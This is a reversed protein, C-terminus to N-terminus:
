TRPAARGPVARRLRGPHIPLRVRDGPHILRLQAAGHLGPCTRPHRRLARRRPCHQGRRVAPRYQGPDGRGTPRPRHRCRRHRAAHRSQGPRICRGDQIRWRLQRQRHAAPQLHRSGEHKAGKSPPRPMRAGQSVNGHHRQLTGRYGHCDVPAADSAVHADARRELAAWIVGACQRADGAALCGLAMGDRHGPDGSGLTRDSEARIQDRRAASLGSEFDGSDFTTLLRFYDPSHQAFTLYADAMARLKATPISCPPGDNAAMLQQRPREARPSGTRRPNSRQERLLPLDHGQSSRGTPGSTWPPAASATRRSSPGRRWCSKRSAGHGTKNVVTKRQWM